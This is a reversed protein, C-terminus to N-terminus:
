FYQSWLAGASHRPRYAVRLSPTFWVTGGTQRLRYNMEWDQARVFSEDYGGVRDLAERRFVGLYVTDAPGETGGVHFAANGVGFRSTMARGVAVEFAIADTGDTSPGLALVVQIEGPYDQNLVSAVAASLHRAENLVPLVTSVTPWDAM